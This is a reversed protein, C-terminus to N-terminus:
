SLALLETATTGAAVSQVAFPVMGGAVVAVTVAAGGGFPVCVVNGAGGAYIYTRVPNGNTDVFAYATASAIAQANDLNLNPGRDQNFAQPSPIVTLNAM